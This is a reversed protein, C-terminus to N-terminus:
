ASVKSNGGGGWRYYTLPKNTLYISSANHYLQMGLLLDEGFKLGSKKLNNTFLTRKFLNGWMTVPVINVGFFSIFLKAKENGSIIRETYNIDFKNTRKIGFTQSFVRINNAYVIDVNQNLAIDIWTQVADKRLWDDADLFALYDGNAINIGSFRAYDVGENIKKDIIVIRNDVKAFSKMISLSNDTSCDNIIIIEIDKYTQQIVSQITKPLFVAGNYCPIIISVKM